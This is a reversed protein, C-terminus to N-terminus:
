ADDASRYAARVAEHDWGIGFGRQLSEMDEALEDLLWTVTAPTPPAPRPPAEPLVRQAARRRVSPPLLPRVLNRYADSQIIRRVAGRSARKGETANSVGELDVDAPLPGIGLSALLADTVARRDGVYDEFRVVHVREPGFSEVWPEVQSAYRTYDLLRADMRVVENIDPGVLAHALDHHHHSVIRAVPERVLYVVAADPAFAAARAAVEPQHPAMAYTTTIDVGVIGPTFPRAYLDRGRSTTTDFRTLGGYEKPALSLGPHQALDDFLTTTGSKMAGIVFVHPVTM